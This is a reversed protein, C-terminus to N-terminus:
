RSRCRASSPGGSRRSTTSVRQQVELLAGGGSGSSGGGGVRRCRGAGGGRAQGLDGHRAQSIARASAAEVQQRGGVGARLFEDVLLAANEGLGSEDILLFHLRVLQAAGREVIARREAVWAELGTSSQRGAGTRQGQKWRSRSRSQQRVSGAAVALAAQKGDKAKGSKSGREYHSRKIARTCRLEGYLHM